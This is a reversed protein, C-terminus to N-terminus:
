ARVATKRKASPKKEPEKNKDFNRFSVFATDRVKPGICLVEEDLILRATCGYLNLHFVPFHNRWSPKKDSREEQLLERTSFGDEWRIEVDTSEGLHNYVRYHRAGM